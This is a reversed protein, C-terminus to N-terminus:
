AFALGTSTSVSIVRGMSCANLATVPTSSSLEVEVSPEERTLTVKVQPVSRSAAAFSMRSRISRIM